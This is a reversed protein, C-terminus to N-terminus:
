RTRDVLPNFRDAPMTGNAVAILIHTTDIAYVAPALTQLQAGMTARYTIFLGTLLEIQRVGGNIVDIVQRAPRHRFRLNDKVLDLFIVRREILVLASDFREFQEYIVIHVAKNTAVEVGM